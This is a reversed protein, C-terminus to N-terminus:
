DGIKKDILKEYTSKSFKNNEILEALKNVFEPENPLEKQLNVIFENLFEKEM